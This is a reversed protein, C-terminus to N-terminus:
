NGANVMCFEIMMMMMMMMWGSVVCYDDMDLFYEM